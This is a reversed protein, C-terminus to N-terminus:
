KLKEITFNAFDEIKSKGNSKMIVEYTNKNESVYIYHEETDNYYKIFVKNNVTIKSEKVNPIAEKIANLNNYSTKITITENSLKNSLNTINYSNNSNEIEGYKTSDIKLNFNYLSCDYRDISKLNGTLEDGEKSLMFYNAKNTKIEIGNAIDNLLENSMKKDTLKYELCFTDKSPTELIFYLEQGTYLLNPEQKVNNVYEFKLIKVDNDKSELISYSSKIYENSNLIEIYKDILVDTDINYFVNANISYNVNKTKDFYHKNFESDQVTGVLEKPIDYYIVEKNKLSHGKVYDKIFIEPNFYEKETLDITDGEKEVVDFNDSSKIFRFFVIIFIVLLITAGFLIILNNRDIKKKKEVVKTINQKKIVKTNRRKNKINSKGKKLKQNDEM